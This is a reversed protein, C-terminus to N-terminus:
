YSYVIKVKLINEVFIVKNKYLNHEAFECRKDVSTQIQESECKSHTVRNGCHWAVSAFKVIKFFETYSMGAWALKIKKSFSM